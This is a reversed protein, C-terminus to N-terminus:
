NKVITFDDAVSEFKSGSKSVFITVSTNTAGTTFTISKQAYNKFDTFQVTQEAGGYNKVGLYLGAPSKAKGWCSVTYTTSGCLDVVVQELASSAADLSVAYSGTHADSTISVSGIETWGTTTGTEFGPNTIEGICTGGPEVTIYDVKTETDSGFANTATLEVTYTGQTYYTVTPNQLTSSSPTGGTFTWDWADPNNTSLDTFNVSDGETIITASASFDAVPPQGPPEVTIYDVKTETDSGFANSATLTVTYTGATYYTVTPNQATSTAPTGGEFTWDWGDPNQTSLDTFTVSDGETIITASASFDAVPPQGGSPIYSAYISYLFDALTSTGFPDPMGGAWLDTSQARGPTGTQYRIGPISEYVWALWVTTGGAVFAPTALDITQWGASSNIPTAATVGLRNQPLTAGDYVGLILGGSGGEHYMTVNQITGDEPMTFPMARRNPTVSTTAFVTTNGVTPLVITVTIYDVKIEEDSGAGNTATLTVNYTGETNYTITPNQETSSSPTGGPFSWSWSTPNNTSSDTFTISDGESINTDSATFDAVPPQLTTVTIYDVKTETDSGNINSAELTVNYTGPTNYIVVPNQETSTAPTGGEFTWSWSTPSNISQDTFQVSGTAMVTIPNGIFDAVPPVGGEVGINAIYPKFNHKSITLIAVPEVGSLADFTLTGTGDGALTTKAVLTDEYVLTALGGPCNSGTIQLSTGGASISTDHTATTVTPQATWIKMAPDGFYHHLEWTTQHVGWLYEMAVKSHNLIDGMTYIPDHAPIPNGAGGSGYQPDIGPDPWIADIIGPAYGDNPGSYSVNTAGFIGVCGDPDKRLFRECFCETTGTFQGTLCNVSMVIPLLNSNNLQNIHSTTFYPDGWLTVDGHDRHWVLFRGADVYNIIDTADGDWAFTPRKLEEPIPTNPPSYNGNNYYLPTVSSGTVYVRNVGYGQVMMYNRIDESTHTFRRDAYSDLNSDQYYACALANSYFGSLTPPNKEYDIIKDVIMQANSASDPFIRGYAMEPKYGTGEMEAYYLDTYQSTGYEAPVDGQDGFLLFFQPKPTWSNYRTKLADDVQTTTWSSQSVIEVSYGMQRKWAALSEAAALYNSHVIMIYDKAGADTAEYSSGSGEPILSRNLVASRVMKNAHKSNKSYRNYASEGGSFTVKFKIKTYIKLEGTVPNIQMPRVQIVALSVGRYSDYEVVKVLKDPFDADTGYVEPDIEFAAEITKDCDPLLELVPHIDVTEPYAQFKSELIQITAQSGYPVAIHNNKAPLMPSGVETMHSFGYIHPTYYCTGQVDKSSLVTGNFKYSIEVGSEGSDTITIHPLTAKYNNGKVLYIDDQNYAPFSGLLFVVLFGLLLFKKM